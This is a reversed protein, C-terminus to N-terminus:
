ASAAASPSSRAAAGIAGRGSLDAGLLGAGTVEGIYRLTQRAGAERQPLPFTNFFFAALYYNLRNTFSRGRAHVGGPLLAGQLIGEGDGACRAGAVLRAAGVPDGACGHPKSPQGRVGRTRQRARPARPRAGAGVRVAARDAPDVHVPQRAPRDAGAVRSEVVSLGGAEAVEAQAPAAAVLTRLEDLTKAGAFKTEDLRTQFQDELAVMLEVRELSSLGLGEISTAGDLARGGAFKALLAQLPDDSTARRLPRVRRIGGM